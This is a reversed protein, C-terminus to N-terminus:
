RVYSYDENVTIPKGGVIKVRTTPTDMTGFPAAKTTMKGTMMYELESIEHQPNPSVIVYVYYKRGSSTYSTTM